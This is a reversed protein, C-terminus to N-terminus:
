ELVIQVRAGSGRVRVADRASEKEHVFCEMSHSGEQQVLRAAAFGGCAEEGIVSGSAHKISCNPISRPILQDGLHLEVMERAPAKAM